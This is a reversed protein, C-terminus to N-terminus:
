PQHRVPGSPSSLGRKSEPSSTRIFDGSAAARNGREKEPANDMWDVCGGTACELWLLDNAAKYTVFLDQRCIPCLAVTNWDQGVRTRKLDDSMSMIAEFRAVEASGENTWPNLHADTTPLDEEEQALQFKPDIELVAKRRGDEIEFSQRWGDPSNSNRTYFDPNIQERVKNRSYGRACLDRTQRRL